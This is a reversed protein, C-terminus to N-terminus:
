GVNPENNRAPKKYTDSRGCIDGLLRRWFNAYYTPNQPQGSRAFHDDHYKVAKAGLRQGCWYRCHLAFRHHKEHMHAFDRAHLEAGRIYSEPDNPELLGASAFLPEQEASYADRRQAMKQAKEHTMHDAIARFPNSFVLTPGNPVAREVQWYELTM